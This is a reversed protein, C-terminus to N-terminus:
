TDLTAGSADIIAIVKGDSKFTFKKTKDIRLVWFMEDEGAQEVHSPEKGDMIFDFPKGMYKKDITVALFHGSKTGSPLNTWDTIKHFNGSVKGILGDWTITVNADMLDSGSKEYGADASQGVVSVRGEGTEFKANKLNLHMFEVDGDKFSVETNKDIVTLIWDEDTSTAPDGGTRQVTVPKDKYPAELRVPLFYGTRDHNEPWPEAIYKLEGTVSGDAAIAADPGVLENVIKGYKGLDHDQPLVKMPVDLTLKSFDITFVPSAARATADTATLKKAATLNELRVVLLLDDGVTM